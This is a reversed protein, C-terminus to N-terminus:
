ATDRENEASINLLIGLAGLTFIMSTGGYSVLPLPIGTTPLLTTNVGIHLISYVAIMSTIGFALLKGYEDACKLAISYGKWILLGFLVMILIAGALGMEEGIISFVFDTYPEPLYFLKQSGHGLGNGFVGGSGLGILAQQAQYGKTLRAKRYPTNMIMSYILPLSTLVIATLHAVKAGGAFIMLVAITSIAMATGFDPQFAIIGAFLATIILHPMLGKSFDDMLERKESLTAALYVILGLKAVDSPMFSVGAFRIWRRAGNIKVGMGDAFVLFLLFLSLLMIHRSYKKWISYDINATISFFAIGLAIRVIQKILFYNPDNYKSEAIAVSASYVMVIGLAMLLVSSIMLILRDYSRNM